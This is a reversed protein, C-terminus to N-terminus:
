RSSRIKGMRKLIRDASEFLEPRSLVANRLARVPARHARHGFAIPHRRTVWGESVAIERTKLSDKYDKQGRGLDLHAIGDAAAAEAMRLHLILGPSYKAYAPDYAPFWCALVRESRLGFHAAVPRDDAYLVSLIGAFPESRSHFLQQVLHTIWAHAFRDSRGTRRYQASKWTMLTRLAAPDREDHVYRVGGTDRGLKREKALTTRTFKPSRARLGRLYAEYGQDVEMVPSPFTGAAGAEFPAQGAVLHDFEWLALGCAQLLEQADWTFGARHVLGQCDSVGLGVARGVGTATRQFPFFAAPEGDERAVAIRVGRRCRGVALTFEPSLFPNALEPSGDLHAKSQLATWAARDAASLEGPRYVSIDM